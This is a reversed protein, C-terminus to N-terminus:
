YTLANHAPAEAPLRFEVVNRGDDVNAWVQNRTPQSSPAVVKPHSDSYPYTWDDM